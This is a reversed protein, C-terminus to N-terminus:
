RRPRERPRWRGALDVDERREDGSTARDGIGGRADADPRARRLAVTLSFARDVAPGPAWVPAGLDRRRLPGAPGLGQLALPAAPPSPWRRLHWREAASPRLHLHPPRGVSRRPRGQANGWGAHQRPARGRGPGVARRPVITPAHPVPLASRTRGRARARRASSRCGGGPSTASRPWGEGPGALFGGGLRHITRTTCWIVLASSM